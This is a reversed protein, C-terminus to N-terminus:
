KAIREFKNLVPTFINLILLGALESEFKVGILTFIFVLAAVGTGFIIEGKQSVPTTKPEILMIFIFFYNQYRLIDILPAGRIVAQAAFLALFAAIYGMIIGLRRMKWVFYFGFPALIYWLDAGLWQTSAGFLLVALLIGFGAPNFFHREKFRIIRKSLIASVAAALFIWGPQASSLVIGIILGSIISSDTITFKKTKLYLLASDAIVAAVIAIVLRTLFFVDKHLFFLYLAFLALFIILKAKM